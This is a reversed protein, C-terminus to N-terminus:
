VAPGQPPHLAVPVERHPLWASLGSVALLYKAFEEMELKMGPGRDFDIGPPPQVPLPFLRVDPLTQRLEAIARPMHWAATVVILSDVQNQAAWSAAEVANGRTSAAYRGLTIRPALAATDIGALRGLTALETGGGIGSLLLRDAHGDALLRLALEVRGPGGTLAVIGDAHPPPSETHRAAIEVFWLFGVCWGVATALAIMAALRLANRPATV